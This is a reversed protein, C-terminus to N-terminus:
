LFKNAGFDNFILNHPLKNEVFICLIIHASFSYVTPKDSFCFLYMWYLHLFVSPPQQCLASGCFTFVYENIRFILLRSALQSPGMGSLINLGAHRKEVIIDQFMVRYSITYPWGYKVIIEEVTVLNGSYFFRNQVLRFDVKPCIWLEDQQVGHGSLKRLLISYRSIAM